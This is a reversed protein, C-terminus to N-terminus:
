PKKIELFGFISRCCKNRTKMSYLRFLSDFHLVVARFLTFLETFLQEFWGFYVQHYHYPEQNKHNLDNKHNKYNSRWVVIILLSGYSRVAPRETVVFCDM